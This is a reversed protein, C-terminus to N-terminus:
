MAGQLADFPQAFADAHYDIRCGWRYYEFFDELVHILHYDHCDVRAKSMLMEDVRCQWLNPTDALHDVVDPGAAVELNIAADVRRSRWQYDICSGVHQDGPRCNKTLAVSDDCGHLTKSCGRILCHGSM